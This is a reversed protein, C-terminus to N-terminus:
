PHEPLSSRRSHLALIAAGAAVAIAATAFAWRYGGTAAAAPLHGHGLLHNARTGAVAVLGALGVVPGFEIATNLLGGALGAQSRDAGHVVMVTAASFTLAVGAPLILLGTLTLGAYPSDVTIRSLAALGVAALALGVAALTPPRVARLLRAAGMGALPLVLLLPLFAATTALAPMGRVQQLYLALFFGTSAHAAAAALVAVLAVLRGPARLFRPPVLPTRGTSQLVGFGALAVTGAALAALALPASWGLDGATVLGYSVSGVGITALGAGPLDLRRPSAPGATAPAAPLLRRGAATGAIAVAVPVVLAVRWSGIAVAAGSLLIGATAGIPALAGWRAAARAHAAPEPYLARLLAMAAPAALAAGAGQGLRSALATGFNPSLGLSVSAVGFSALGALLVRRPPLTDALRGGVLLLSSFALGYGASVLALQGTRLDLDHQIAPLGIAVVTIALILTMQVVALLGFARRRYKISRDLILDRSPPTHTPM